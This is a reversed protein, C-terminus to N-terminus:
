SVAGMSEPTADDFASRIREAASKKKSSLPRVSIEKETAVNAALLDQLDKVRAQLGKTQAELRAIEKKTESIFEKSFNSMLEVTICNFPKIM